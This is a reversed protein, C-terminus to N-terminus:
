ASWDGNWKLNSRIGARMRKQESELNWEQYKHGPPINTNQFQAGDQHALCADFNERAYTEPNYNWVWRGIKFFGINANKRDAEIATINANHLEERNLFGTQQLISVREFRLCNHVKTAQPALSKGAIRLCEALSIADELAQVAGNGATPFFVHASDGLRVLRGGESTWQRVGDRWRLRWDVVGTPSSRVFDLVAPDWEDSAKELYSILVASDKLNSWSEQADDNDPHTLAFAVWDPTLFLILHIDSGVYTAPTGNKIATRPFAVRAVAYGSDQIAVDPGANFGPIYSGIGNAGICIDGIYEKGSATTVIVSDHKELVSVVKEGWHIPINLRNRQDLQMQAYVPRRKLFSIDVDPAAHIVGPRKWQPM